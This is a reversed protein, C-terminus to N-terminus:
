NGNGGGCGILEPYQSDSDFRASSYAFEGTRFGTLSGLDGKLMTGRYRIFATSDSTVGEGRTSPYIAFTFPKSDLDSIAIYNGYTVYMDYGGIWGIRSTWYAADAESGFCMVKAYRICTPYDPTGNSCKPPTCTPYDLAGNACRAGPPPTCTPYDSAGNACKPPTCTPYDGAGNMCKPPTCTPYDAAGNACVPPTCVPYDSAGNACKPPTCTPYDTAGNACQPPTCTPYDLAGNACKPPPLACNSSYLVWPTAGQGGYKDTWVNRTNTIFGTQPPPCPVTQFEPHTDTSGPKNSPVWTAAIAVAPVTGLPNLIKKGNKELLTDTDSATAWGYGGAALAISTAMRYDPKNGKTIVGTTPVVTVAIVCSQDPCGPPEHKLVVRLDGGFRPSVTTKFQESLFGATKLTQFDPTMSVSGDNKMINNQNAKAYAEGAKLLTVYQGARSKASFYEEIDTKFVATGAVTVAVIGVSLIASMLSFGRQKNM